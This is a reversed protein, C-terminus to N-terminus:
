IAKSCRSTSVSKQCYKEEAFAFACESEGPIAFLANERLIVGAIADLGQSEVVERSTTPSMAHVELANLSASTATFHGTGHTSGTETHSAFSPGFEIDSCLKWKEQVEVIVASGSCKETCKQVSSYLSNGLRRVGPMSSLRTGRDLYTEPSALMLMGPSEHSKM